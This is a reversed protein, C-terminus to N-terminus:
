LTRRRKSVEGSRPSSFIGHEGFLVGFLMGYCGIAQQPQKKSQPQRNCHNSATEGSQLQMLMGTKGSDTLSTREFAGPRVPLLQLYSVLKDM